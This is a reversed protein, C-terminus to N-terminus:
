QEELHVIVGREALTGALDSIERRNEWANETFVVVELHRLSAISKPAQIIMNQSIDLNRLEGLNAIWDPVTVFRNANMRLVQLNKLKELSAPLASLRNHHIFLARLNTLEGIKDSISYIRNSAIYLIQLNSLRAVPDEIKEIENFYLDLFLLQKMGYIVDPISTLRNSYLSLEELNQLSSLAYPLDAIENYSLVLKHLGSFQGLWAPVQTINNHQLGIHKLYPNGKVRKESLTLRNEALNLSTLSHNRSIDPFMTMNNRKLDLTDLAKLARYHKPLSHPTAGRISLYYITRNRALKLPTEFTNNYIAVNCLKKLKNLRRPLRSVHSNVFELKELNRCEFLVRPLRKDQFASISLNKVEEARVKGALLDNILTYEPTPKYVYRYGTVGAQFKERYVARVSDVMRPPTGSSPDLMMNIKEQLLSLETSDATSRYIPIRQQSILPSLTFFLLLTSLFLRM